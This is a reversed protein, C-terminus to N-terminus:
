APAVRGATARACMVVTAAVALAIPTFAPIVDTPRAAMLYAGALTFAPTGWQSAAITVAAAAGVTVSTTRRRGLVRLANLSTLFILTSSVMGAAAWAGVHSGSNLLRGGTGAVFLTVPLIAGISILVRRPAQTTSARRLRSLEGCQVGLLVALLLAATVHTALLTTSM